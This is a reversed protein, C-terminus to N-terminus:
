MRLLVNTEQRLFDGPAPGGAVTLEHCGADDNAETRTTRTIDDVVVGATAHGLALNNGHNQLTFTESGATLDDFIVTNPSATSDTFVRSFENNTNTDMDAASGGGSFICDVVDYTASGMGPIGPDEVSRFLCGKLNVIHSRGNGRLMSEGYVTCHRMTLTLNGSKWEAMAGGKDAGVQAPRQFDFILCNEFIQTTSAAFQGMSSETGTNSTPRFMMRNNTWTTAGAHRFIENSADTSVDVQMSFDNLTLDGTYGNFIHANQDSILRSNEDWAVGDGEGGDDAMITLNKAGTIGANGSGLHEQNQMLLRDGNVVGADDIALQIDAFDAGSAGIIHDPM